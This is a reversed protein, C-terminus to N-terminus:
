WMRKNEFAISTSSPIYNTRRENRTLLIRNLRVLPMAAAYYRISVFGSQYKLRVDFGERKTYNVHDHTESTTKRGNEGPGHGVSDHGQVGNYIGSEFFVTIYESSDLSPDLDFILERRLEV